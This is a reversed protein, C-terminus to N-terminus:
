KSFVAKIFDDISETTNNTDHIKNTPEYISSFGSAVFGSKVFRVSCFAMDVLGCNDFLERKIRFGNEIGTKSPRITVVQMKM